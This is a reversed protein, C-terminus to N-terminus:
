VALPGVNGLPLVHGLCLLHGRGEGREMRWARELEVDRERAEEGTEM